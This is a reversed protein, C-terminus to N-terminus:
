DKSVAMCEIFVQNYVDQPKEYKFRDYAIVAYRDTLEQDMIQGLGYDIFEKHLNERKVNADRFTATLQAIKSTIDCMKTGANATISVSLLLAMIYKM